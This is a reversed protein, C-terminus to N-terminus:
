EIDNNVTFSDLEESLDGRLLYEEEYQWGSEYVEQILIKIKDEPVGRHIIAKVGERNDYFEGWIKLFASSVNPLEDEMDELDEEEEEEQDLLQANLLNEYAGRNFVTKIRLSPQSLKIHTIEKSIECVLATNIARHPCIITKLKIKFTKSQSHM